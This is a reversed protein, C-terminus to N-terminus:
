RNCLQKYSCNKCTTLDETQSFNIAPNYIENILKSLEESFETNITKYDSIFSKDDKLLIHFDFNNEFLKRLSYIGPIVPLEPKENETYFKSYIFTQFVASNQDDKKGSFLSNINKFELKDNGSKYDVIRIQSNMKDIRDIKGGLNIKHPSNNVTATVNILYNNELSLIDFPTYQEDVKVIQRIYKEIVERIIINKGLYVTKGASKFYEKNFAEDIANTITNENKLISLLIESDVTKGIYPNYLVHMAEHLINGFLPADIEETIEDKEKLGAIYRFYFQLKCKLYSSIASPSIYKQEETDSAHYKALKKLIDNNKFISIEKQTKTNINYRISKENVPYMNEFKLQYIFRSMEGSQLGDTKSNYVLTINKARQILRYFYYAYIADQHEITPLGFGRRLNYPIFSLSSESKPFIGENVSLVILNEFDLLRTELIGMIQLGTLPEGTFPIRLNRIIKHLLRIFTDIKIEVKQEALVDKVRNVSLYIHYIYEKEISLSHINEESNTSYLSNYIQHIISLIYESLEIYNNIRKFIGVFFSNKGLEDSTLQIRNRIQIYQILEEATDTFQSKIYQHNLIALVNKHYFTITGTSSQKSNKQLGIIHELLSYIPTNIVPYGMTINVKNITDPVSHIVPILLHEDALVIATKDPSDTLQYTNELLKQTIQKAQGVDSPVSIIEINKSSTLNTFNVKTEFAINQKYNVLNERLFYGAEYKENKIYLEDYDWYFDAKKNNNLHTFLVKECNNLANFGIFVYKSHNLKVNSNDKLKDAVTKYVMGEYAITGAKLNTNFETYIEFLVNWISIFDQQHLSNKEPDFSKWFEQIAELQKESLYAFQDHISKLNKLNKFLDGPNVLYKDINDFDNLLMEGWFYFEDFSENSKKVKTYVKYLEFLLKINDAVQLGSIDQVLENITTTTPSWIPKDALESLYKKFYLSARRNPFVICLDSINEGYRSYLDTAIHKLFPEM